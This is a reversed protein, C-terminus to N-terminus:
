PKATAITLKTATRFGFPFKLTHLTFSTFKIKSNNMKIKEAVRIKKM